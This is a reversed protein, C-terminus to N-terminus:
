ADGNSVGLETRLQRIARRWLMRAADPSRDMRTGIEAFQSRDRSRWLIIQRYAPPLRELASELQEALTERDFRASPSESCSAALHDILRKSEGEDLSRERRLSRSKARYYRRRLAKLQEMLIQRLWKRLEIETQPKADLAEWAHLAATLTEQVLDSPAAKPKLRDDLRAQATALLYPRYLDLLSALAEGRGSTLDALLQTLRKRSTRSRAPSSDM